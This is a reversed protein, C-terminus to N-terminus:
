RLGNVLVRSDSILVIIQFIVSGISEFFLNHFGRSVAYFALTFSDLVMSISSLYVLGKIVPSYDLYNALFVVSLFSLFALPIKITLISGLFEKTKGPFKATERTLVNALGLDIFIAFITTFSIAFYYKGLDEPGLARAIITFYAFSIIKQFILGLTFYSTNRAINSVIVTM